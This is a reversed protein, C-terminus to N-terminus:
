AVPRRASRHKLTLEPRSAAREAQLISKYADDKTELFTAPTVPDRFVVHPSTLTEGGAAFQTEVGMIFSTTGPGTQYPAPTFVDKGNEDKSWTGPRQANLFIRELFGGQVANRSLMTKTMNLQMQSQRVSESILPDLDVEYLTLLGGLPLLAEQAADDGLIRVMTQQEGDQNREAAVYSLEYRQKDDEKYAYIGLPQMTRRDLYMTTEGPEPRHVYLLQLAEDLTQAVLAGQEDLLDPPVFLRLCTKRALLAEDILTQEDAAIEEGDQLARRVTLSWIPERGVVGDAHRDVVEKVVNQSVFAKRILAMTPGADPDDAPLTPGVWAAGGQWHDGTYFALNVTQAAKEEASATARLKEIEEPTLNDFRIPM